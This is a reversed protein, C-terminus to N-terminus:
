FSELARTHFVDCETMPLAPLEAADTVHRRRAAISKSWERCQGIRELTLEKGLRKRTAFM